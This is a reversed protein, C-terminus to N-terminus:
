EGIELYPLVKNILSDPILGSKILEDLDTIQGYQERFRILSKAFHYGGYPHRMLQKFDAVNVNMKRLLSVDVRVYRILWLLKLSDMGRIETLQRVDNYGGLKERYRLIKGAFYPGIGPLSLLDLSDAANLEIMHVAQKQPAIFSKAVSHGSQVNLQYAHHGHDNHKVTDELTDAFAPVVFLGSARFAAEINATDHRALMRYVGPVLLTIVILVSIILIGRREGSSFSLYDKIFQHM